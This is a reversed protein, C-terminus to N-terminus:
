HTRDLIDRLARALEHQSYPKPLLPFEALEDEPRALSPSVFGSTLLIKLDPRLQRAQQALEHGNLGPMMVDTFMLQIENNNKLISLATEGNSVALVEYGLRNALMTQAANRVMEDDDVILITESGGSAQEVKENAVRVPESSVPLYLSVTTGVGPQSAITVHGHSQKAFGFVSSLGLGTGKGLEKTTFFPEFVHKLNEQSIGTGNDKVKIQLYHGARFDPYQRAEEEQVHIESTCITLEGGKPMADRANISLNLLAGELQHEDVLAPPLNHDILVTVKINVSLTCVLLERMGKVLENIDLPRPALQQKRAYALLRRTLESGKLAASRIAAALRRGQEHYQYLDQLLDANGLIITLLNNFDHAVHGTLKGISEMHQAQDLRQQMLKRETISHFYVALGEPSPFADLEIWNNMLNSFYEYHFPTNTRVANHFGEFLPTDRLYAFEDWLVYGTLPRGSRGVLKLAAKNVYVLRWQTDLLYFADSMNELTVLLRDSVLRKEQEHQKQLSIDQLAGVVRTLQSEHAQEVQGIVHIWKRTGNTTDIEFEIDCATGTSRCSEMQNMVIARYEPLIHRGIQELTLQTLPPYGFIELMPPSCYLVRSDGYTIAWGGVRALKQTIELLTDNLM